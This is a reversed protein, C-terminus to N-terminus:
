HVYETKLEAFDFPDIKKGLLFPNYNSVQAPVCNGMVIKYLPSLYEEGIEYVATGPGVCANAWKITKIAYKPVPVICETGFIPVVEITCNADGFYSQEIAHGSPLCRRRTDEAVTPTCDENRLEDYYGAFQVHLLGDKTSVKEWKRVIRTGDASTCPNCLSENGQGAETSADSIDPFILPEAKCSVLALLAFAFLRHM